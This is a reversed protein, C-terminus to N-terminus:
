RSPAITAQAARRASLRAGAWGDAVASRRTSGKGSITCPAAASSTWGAASVRGGTGSVAVSDLRFRGRDLRRGWGCRQRQGRLLRYLGRLIEGADLADVRREGSGEALEADRAVLLDGGPHAAVDPADLLRESLRATGIPLVPDLLRLDQGLAALRAVGAAAGAALGGVGLRGRILAFAARDYLGRGCCACRQARRDGDGRTRGAAAGGGNSGLDDRGFERRGLALRFGGRRRPGLRRHRRGVHRAAGGERCGRGMVITTAGFGAGMAGAAVAAAM